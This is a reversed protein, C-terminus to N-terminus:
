NASINYICVQLRRIFTYVSQEHKMGTINSIIIMSTSCVNAHVPMVVANSGYNAQFFLIRTTQICALSANFSM